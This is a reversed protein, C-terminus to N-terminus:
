LLKDQHLGTFLFGVNLFDTKHRLACRVSKSCLLNLSVTTNSICGYSAVGLSTLGQRLM